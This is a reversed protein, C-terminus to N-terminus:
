PKAPIGELVHPVLRNVYGGGRANKIDQRIPRAKEELEDILGLTRTKVWGDQHKLAGALTALTDAEHGLFCLADVAALRVDVSPDELAKGLVDLTAPTRDRLNALGIVAWYRLAADSDKALALLQPLAEPGREHLNM